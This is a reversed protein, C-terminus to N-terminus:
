YIGVATTEIRNRGNTKARRLAEDASRVVATYDPDVSEAVGVSVTVLTDGAPTDIATAAIVARLREAALAAVQEGTDPLVVLFEEGGWRGITDETRVEQSLRRAVVCLVADGSEYGLEGNVRKFNDVDILLVATPRGHRAAASLAMTLHEEIHRRNWLGTLHDTRSIRELEENQAHLEAQLRQQVAEAERRTTIDRIVAVAYSGPRPTTIHALRLEIWLETGNKRCARLEVTAESDLLPTPQGDALRAIGARHGGRLAEPVLQEILLGPGEEADYGFLEAAAPNWLVVRGSPAEGVIVADPVITFLRGFGFDEPSTAEHNM